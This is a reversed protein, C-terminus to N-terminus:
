DAYVSVELKLLHRAIAAADPVRLEGIGGPSDTVFAVPFGLYEAMAPIGGWRESEDLHSAVLCTPSFQEFIDVMDILDNSRSCASFVLFVLDPTVSGLEEALKQQRRRSCGISPTDILIVSDDDQGAQLQRCFGAQLDLLDAYAGIEEYAAIKMQDLSLLKVKQGYKTCLQAATKGMVSTKGAGSPGVFAVRMGPEISVSATTLRYIEDHVVTIATQEVNGTGDDSGAIKETLRHAIEVPVDSDLLNLFVPKYEPALDAFIDPSRHASLIRNLAKELGAFDKVDRDIGVIPNDDVVSKTVTNKQGPKDRRSEKHKSLTEEDICATVEFRQGTMSIEKEPCVTTKLVVADGGLEERIKKLAAAVTPGNFSKIIM